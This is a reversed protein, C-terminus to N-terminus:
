QKVLCPLEAAAGPTETGAALASWGGGGPGSAFAPPGQGPFACGALRPRSRPFRASPSPFPPAEALLARREWSMPGPTGLVRRARGVGSLGDRARLLWGTRAGKGSPLSPLVSTRWPSLVPVVPAPFVYKGPDLDYEGFKESMSELGARFIFWTVYSDARSSM